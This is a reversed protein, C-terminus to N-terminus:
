RSLNEKERKQAQQESIIHAVSNVLEQLSQFLSQTIGAYSTGTFMEATDSSEDEDGDVESEDEESSTADSTLAVYSASVKTFYETLKKEQAKDAEPHKDPHLLLSLRRYARRANQPTWAEGLGLIEVHDGARDIQDFVAQVKAWTTPM